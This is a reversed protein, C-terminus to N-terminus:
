IDGMSFLQPMWFLGLTQVTHQILFILPLREGYNGDLKSSFV